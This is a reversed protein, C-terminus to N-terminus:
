DSSVANKFWRIEIKNRLPSGDIIIADIRWDDGLDSHEQMYAEASNILHQQKTESIAQEGFGFATSTRTKVEFFVVQSDDMGILDLEGYPTRTNTAMIKIGKGELYQKAKLEGWKGLRQNSAM